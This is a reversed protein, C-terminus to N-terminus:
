ARARMLRSIVRSLNRWDSDVAFVLWSTKSMIIFCSSDSYVVIVEILANYPGRRAQSSKRLMPKWGIRDPVLIGRCYSLRFKRTREEHAKSEAMFRHADCGKIELEGGDATGDVAAGAANHQIRNPPHYTQRLQALFPQLLQIYPEGMTAATARAVSRRQPPTIPHAHRAMPAAVIACTFILNIKSSPPHRVTIAFRGHWCFHAETFTKSM